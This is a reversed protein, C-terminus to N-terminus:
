FCTAHRRLSRMFFGFVRAPENCLIVKKVRTEAFSVSPTQYRLTVPKPPALQWIYGSIHHMIVSSQAMMLEVQVQCVVADIEDETDRMFFCLMSCLAPQPAEPM